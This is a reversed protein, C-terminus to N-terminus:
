IKVIEFQVLVSFRSKLLFDKIGLNAARLVMERTESGSLFMVPVKCCMSNRRIAEAVAFGDMGPLGIDLIILHVEPNRALWELGTEGTEFAQVEFGERRLIDATTERAMASDDVLMITQAM